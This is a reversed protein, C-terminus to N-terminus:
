IRGADVSMTEIGCEDVGRRIRFTGDEGWKNGWSNVITWYEEGNDTVGWGILKVAHGGLQKDTTRRYVGSKYAPFDEYVIYAVSLPGYLMLDKQISKVSTLSYATTSFHKDSSYPIDYSNISCKKVCKDSGDPSPPTPPVLCDTFMNKIDSYVVGIDEFVQELDGTELDKLIDNLHNIAVHVDESCQDNAFRANDDFCDDYAKIFDNVTKISDELMKEDDQDEYDESLQKVDELLEFVDTMCDPNINYSNINYNNIGYDDHKHTPPFSYPLCSDTTNYLGGTVVGKNTFFEWARSPLGGNCGFSECTLVDCCGLTDQTSLMAQFDGGTSICLRDNFAETSAFAWCSGCNAQDRINGINPCEPWEERADFHNPIDTSYYYYDFDILPSLHSVTNIDVGCLNKVDQIQYNYFRPSEHATWSTQISNIKDVIDENIFSSKSLVSVSCLAIFTLFKKLM